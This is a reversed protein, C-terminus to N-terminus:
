IQISRFIIFCLNLMPIHMYMLVNAYLHLQDVAIYPKFAFNSIIPDSPATHRQGYHYDDIADKFYVHQRATHINVYFLGKHFVSKLTLLPM